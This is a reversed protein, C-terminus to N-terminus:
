EPPKNKNKLKRIFSLLRLVSMMLFVSGEGTIFFTTLLAKLVGLKKLFSKNHTEVKLFNLFM